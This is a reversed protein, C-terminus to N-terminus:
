MASNNILPQFNSFFFRYFMLKLSAVYFILYQAGLVFKNHVFFFVNNREKPISHIFTM